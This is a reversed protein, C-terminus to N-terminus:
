QGVQKLDVKGIQRYLLLALIGNILTALLLVINAAQDSASLIIVFPIIEMAMPVFMGIMTASSQKVVVAENDWAFNPLRLNIFIGFVASFVSYALPTLYLLIVTIGSLKLGIAFLTSTILITPVSLTLNWLIKSDFLTKPSIPLSLLMNWQKGELSISSVTTSSTSMLGAVFLPALTYLDDLTGQAGLIRSLGDSGIVFLFIGLGIAMVYGIGTNLVYVSSSFYRKMEKQYLAKWPAKIKLEELVYNNKTTRAKLANHIENYKWATFLVFVAYIVISLLVFALFSLWNGSVMASSYLPAVPYMQKLQQTLMLSLNSLDQQNMNGSSFSLVIVGICLAFSLVITVLNKHKMQSSVWTIIVSLIGAITLPILPIFFVSLILMFYFSFSEQAYLVYILTGPFMTLCAFGINGVYITIFRSVVVAAPRVPLSTLLEYDKAGFLIGNMKFISFFLIVLSTIVLIYSPILDVAGVLVLSYAMMGIYVILFIGVILFSIAMLIANKKKKVDKSYHIENLNFLRLLQVKLLNKCDRFM